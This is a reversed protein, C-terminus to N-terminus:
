FLIAIKTAMALRGVIFHSCLRGGWVPGLSASEQHRVESLIVSVTVVVATFGWDSCILRGSVSPVYPQHADANVIM